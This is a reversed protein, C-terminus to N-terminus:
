LRRLNFWWFNRENKLFYTTITLGKMSTSQMAIKVIDNQYTVTHLVVKLLCWYSLCIPISVKNIQIIMEKTIYTLLCGVLVQDLYHWLLFELNQIVKSDHNHQRMCKSSLKLPLLLNGLLLGMWIVGLLPPSIQSKSTIYNNSELKIPSNYNPLFIQFITSLEFSSSSFTMLINTLPKPVMFSKFHALFQIVFTLSLLFSCLFHNWQCIVYVKIYTKSIGWYVYFYLIVDCSICKSIGLSISAELIIFLM